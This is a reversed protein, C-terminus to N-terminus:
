APDQTRAQLRELDPDRPFAKLAADLQEQAGVRLGADLLAEVRVVAELPDRFRIPPKEVKQRLLKVDEAAKGTAELAALARDHVDRQDYHLAVQAVTRLRNPKDAAVRLIEAVLADRPGEEARVCRRVLGRLQRDRISEMWFPAASVALLVAIVVLMRLPVLTTLANILDGIARSM